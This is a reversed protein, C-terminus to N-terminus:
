SVPWAAVAARVARQAAASGEALRWGGLDRDVVPNSVGRLEVFPVGYLAAVHALAAGEMGECLAGWRAALETGRAETGSCASVTLFPGVRAPIGAATLARSLRGVLAPDAPFENFWRRGEREALPIGIGETGMWGGPAEVGEDAYVAASGLAVDGPVLGSGAYAGAVGFGIVGRVAGRELVATLAHAANTKGMGGAVLHVPVGDLLGRWGPKGGVAAELPAALADRLAECELRVSCILVLETASV